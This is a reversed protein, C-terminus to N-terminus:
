IPTRTPTPTRTKRAAAQVPQVRVASVMSIIAVTLLLIGLGMLSRKLVNRNANM